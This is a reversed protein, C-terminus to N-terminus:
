FDNHNQAYKSIPVLIGTLSPIQNKGAFTEDMFLFYARM